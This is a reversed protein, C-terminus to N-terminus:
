LEIANAREFLENVYEHSKGLSVRIYECAMSVRDIELSHVWAYFALGGATEMLNEVQELLGDEELIYKMRWSSVSEIKCIFEEGHYVKDGSLTIPSLNLIQEIKSATMIPEFGDRFTVKYGDADLKYGAILEQTSAPLDEYKEIGFLKTFDPEGNKKQLIMYGM